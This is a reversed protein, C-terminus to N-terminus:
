RNGARNRSPERGTPALVRTASARRRAGKAGGAESAYRLTVAADAERPRARRLLARARRQPPAPVGRRSPAFLTKLASVAMKLLYDGRWDIFFGGSSGRHRWDAQHVIPCELPIPHGLRSPRIGACQPRGGRGGACRPLVGTEELAAHRRSCQSASLGMRGALENHTLRGDEQLANLLKLDFEDM